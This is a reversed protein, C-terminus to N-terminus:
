DLIHVKILINEFSIIYGKFFFIWNETVHKTWLENQGKNKTEEFNINLNDIQNGDKKKAM